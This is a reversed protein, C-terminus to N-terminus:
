SFSIALSKYWHSCGIILSAEEKEEEKEGDQGERRKPPIDNVLLMCMCVQM